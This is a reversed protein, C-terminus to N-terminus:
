SYIHVIWSYKMSKQQGDDEQFIRQELKEEGRQSIQKACVRYVLEFLFM